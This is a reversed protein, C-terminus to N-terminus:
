ILGLATPTTWPSQGINDKTSSGALTVIPLSSSLGGSSARLIIRSIITENSYGDWVSVLRKDCGELDSDVTAMVVSLWKTVPLREDVRRSMCGSWDRYLVPGVHCLGVLWLGTNTGRAPFLGILGAPYPSTDQTTEARFLLVLLTKLDWDWTVHQVTICMMLLSDSGLKLLCQKYHKAPHRAVM